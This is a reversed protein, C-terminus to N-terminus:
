KPNFSKCIFVLLVSVVPVFLFAAVMLLTDDM